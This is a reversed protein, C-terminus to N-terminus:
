AKQWFVPQNTVKNVYVRFWNNKKQGEKPKNPEKGLLQKLDYRNMIVEKTGLVPMTNEIAELHRKMLYNNSEM